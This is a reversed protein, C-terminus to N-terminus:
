AASGSLEDTRRAAIGRAVDVRRQCREVRLRLQLLVVFSFLMAAFAIALTALMTGELGQGVSGETMIKPDPHLTRWWRVSYHIIPIDAGGIIALVACYRAVQEPHGGYSRLMLYGIYVLWLVFASTLRADWIWYTGWVPKAWLPGTTIMITAFLAGVEAAATAIEDWRSERRLLYMVSAFFLLGYGVYMTFAAPVHVYMMRQIEGEVRETPAYLFIAWLAVAYVGIGLLALTALGNGRVPRAGASM